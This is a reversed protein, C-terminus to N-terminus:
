IREFFPSIRSFISIRKGDSPSLFYGSLPWSSGREVWQLCQPSKWLLGKIENEHVIDLCVSAIPCLLGRVAGLKPHSPATFGWPTWPASALGVEGRWGEGNYGVLSAECPCSPFHNVCSRCRDIIWQRIPNPTVCSWLRPYSVICYYFVIIETFYKGQRVDWPM